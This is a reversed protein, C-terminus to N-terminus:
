PVDDEVVQFRCATLCAVLRTTRANKGRPFVFTILSPEAGYRRVTGVVITLFYPDAIARPSLDVRAANGLAAQQAARETKLRSV